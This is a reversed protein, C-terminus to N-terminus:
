LRHVSKQLNLMAGAKVSSFSGLEAPQLDSGIHKCRVRGDIFWRLGQEYAWAGANLDCGWFPRSIKKAELPMKQFLENRLLLFGFGTAMVRKPSRSIWVHRPWNEFNGGSIRWALFQATIRSIVTGSVFDAKKRVRTEQLRVLANAPPLIDHELILLDRSKIFAKSFAYLMACHEAKRIQSERSYPSGSYLSLQPHFRVPSPHHKLLERHFAEDRSNDVAFFETGSPKELRNLAEFFPDLLSQQGSFLTLIALPCEKKVPDQFTSMGHLRELRFPHGRFNFSLIPLLSLSTLRISCPCVFVKDTGCFGRISVFNKLTLWPSALCAHNLLKTKFDLKCLGLLFQNQDFGHTFPAFVHHQLKQGIHKKIVGLQLDFDIDPHMVLRVQHKQLRSLLNRIDPDVAPLDGRELNLAQGFFKFPGPNNKHFLGVALKILEFLQNLLFDFILRPNLVHSKIITKHRPNRLRQLPRILDYHVGNHFTHDPKGKIVPNKLGM